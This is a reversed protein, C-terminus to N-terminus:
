TTRQVACVSETGHAHVCVCVCVFLNNLAILLLPASLIGLGM